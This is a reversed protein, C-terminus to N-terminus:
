LWISQSIRGCEGISGGGTVAMIIINKPCYKITCLTTSGAPAKYQFLVM